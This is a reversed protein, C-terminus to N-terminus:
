TSRRPQCVYALLYCREIDSYLGRASAVQEESFVAAEMSPGAWNLGKAELIDFGAKDLKEVMERHTYEYDHDPNVFHPQQLRCVTSNPTDLALVGGPRLVRNVEALVTDAVEVPVHEISQGSYVLDFSGDGYASLDAMSHYRFRVPGQPTPTEARAMAEHYLPDREDPPLDVVVLEDFAYPYGMFLMAGQPLGLATGGLDLIRRAPPLSRVFINRSFHLSANLQTLRVATWWEGSAVIWEAVQTADTKGALLDPLYEELGGEDPARHLLLRYIAELQGRASLQAFEGRRTLRQGKHVASAM